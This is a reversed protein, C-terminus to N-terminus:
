SKVESDEEEDDEKKEVQEIRIENDAYRERNNNLFNGTLGIGFGALILLLVM